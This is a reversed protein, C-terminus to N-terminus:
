SFMKSCCRSSFVNSPALDKRSRDGFLNIKSTFANTEVSNGPNNNDKQTTTTKRTQQQRESIRGWTM